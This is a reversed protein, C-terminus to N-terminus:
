RNLFITQSGFLHWGSHRCDLFFHPLFLWFWPILFPKCFQAKMVPRKLKYSIGFDGQIAGVVFRFYRVIAPDDLHMQARVRVIVDEGIHEKM